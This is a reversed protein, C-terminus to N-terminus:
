IIDLLHYYSIIGNSKSNDCIAIAHHISFDPTFDLILNLTRTM